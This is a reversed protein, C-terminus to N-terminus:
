LLKPTLRIPFSLFIYSKFFAPCLIESCLCKLELNRTKLWISIAKSFKGNKAIMKRLVPHFFCISVKAM